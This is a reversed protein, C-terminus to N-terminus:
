LWTFRRRQVDVVVGLLNKVHKFPGAGQLDAVAISFVIRDTKTIQDANGRVRKVQNSAAALLWETVQAHITEDALPRL